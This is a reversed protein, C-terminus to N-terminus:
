GGSERNILTTKLRIRQPEADPTEVRRILASIAAAGIDQLPVRVTSLTPRVLSCLRTDDFGIIRVDGPVRLGADLAAHMIGYAIEDNGALVGAGKLVGRAVADRTWMAGWNVSYDGYAIQDPGLAITDGARAPTRAAIHIRVADAFAKARRATDFNERPGGVFFCRAPEVSELLHQAAETAGAEHDVLITDKVAGNVEADLLVIPLDSRRAVELLKENPETIMMAVGDVLGLMAGIHGDSPKGGIGSTVLLHYGRRRAEEDAGRLLASYFEGHLDPVGVGLIRSRRTMLGQAFRNPRFNLQDIAKRVREATDAAVLDPTNLVRSVTAISVQATAAVDQISANRGAGPSPRATRRKTHKM